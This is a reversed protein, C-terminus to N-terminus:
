AKFYKKLIDLQELSWAVHFGDMKRWSELGMGKCARGLKQFSVECDFHCYPHLLSVKSEWYVKGYQDISGKNEKTFADMGRVVWCALDFPVVTVQPAAKKVQVLTDLDLLDAVM